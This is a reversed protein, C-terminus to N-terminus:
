CRTATQAPPSCLSSPPHALDIETLCTLEAATLETKPGLFRRHRSEPSLRAFLGALRDRDGPGIQRLELLRGDRLFVADAAAILAEPVVPAVDESHWPESAATM